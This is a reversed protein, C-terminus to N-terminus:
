NIIRFRPKDPEVPNLPGYLEIFDSERIKSMAMLESFDFGLDDIHSRIIAPLVTPPNFPFDLSVPEKM